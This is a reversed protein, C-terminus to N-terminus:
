NSKPIQGFWMHCLFYKLVTVIFWVLDLLEPIMTNRRQILEVSSLAEAPNESPWELQIKAANGTDLLSSQELPVGRIQQCWRLCLGSALVLAECVPTWRHPILSSIKGVCVHSVVARYSSCKRRQDVFQLQSTLLADSYHVTLTSEGTASSHRWVNYFRYAILVHSFLLRLSSM